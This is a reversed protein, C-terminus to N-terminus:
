MEPSVNVEGGAAVRVVQWYLRGSRNIGTGFKRNASQILLYYTGPGPLSLSYNGVADVRAKLAGQSQTFQSISRLGAEVMTDAGDSSFHYQGILAAIDAPPQIYHAEREERSRYSKDVKRDHAENAEKFRRWQGYANAAQGVTGIQHMNLTAWATASDLVTVASGVDAKINQRHDRYTVTGVIKQQAFAASCSLLGSLLLIIKKM